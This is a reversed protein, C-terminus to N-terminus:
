PITSYTLVLPAQNDSSCGIPRNDTWPASHATPLIRCWWCIKRGPGANVRSEYLELSRDLNWWGAWPYLREKRCKKDNERKNLHFSKM